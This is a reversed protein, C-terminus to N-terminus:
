NTVNGFIVNRVYFKPFIQKRPLVGYEQLPYVAEIKFKAVALLEYCYSISWVYIYVYIYQNLKLFCFFTKFLLIVSYILVAKATLILVKIQLTIVAFTM